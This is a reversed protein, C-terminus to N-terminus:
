KKKNNLDKQNSSSYKDHSKALNISLNNTSSNPYPTYFKISSDNSFKNYKQNTTNLNKTKSVSSTYYIDIKFNYNRTNSDNISIKIKKVKLNKHDTTSKSNSLFKNKKKIQIM